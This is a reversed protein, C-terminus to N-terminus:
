EWIAAVTAFLVCVGILGGSIYFFLPPPMAQTAIAIVLGVAGSVVLVTAACRGWFESATM